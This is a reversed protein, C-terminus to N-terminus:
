HRAGALGRLEETRERKKEGDDLGVLRSCSQVWVDDHSAPRNLLWIGRCAAALSIVGLLIGVALWHTSLLVGATTGALLSTALALTIPLHCPCMLCAAIVWARGRLSSM